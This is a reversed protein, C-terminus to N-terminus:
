LPLFHHSTNSYPSSPPNPTHYHSSPAVTPRHCHTADGRTRLGKEAWELEQQKVTSPYGLCCGVNGAKNIYRQSFRRGLCDICKRGEKMEGMGIAVCQRCYVRGCVLCRHCSTPTPPASPASTPTPFGRGVGGGEAEAEM